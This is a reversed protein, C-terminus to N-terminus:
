AIRRAAAPIPRPAPSAPARCRPAPFSVASAPSSNDRRRNRRRALTGRIRLARRREVVTAEGVPVLAAVVVGDGVELLRDLEVRFERRSVGVAAFQALVNGVVGLQEFRRAVRDLHNGPRPGIDFDGGLRFQDQGLGNQLGQGLGLGLPRNVRERFLFHPAPPSPLRTVSFPKRPPPPHCRM